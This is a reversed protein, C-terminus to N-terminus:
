KFKYITEGDILLIYIINEEFIEVIEILDIEVINKDIALRSLLINLM